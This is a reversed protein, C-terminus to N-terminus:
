NDFYFVVAKTEKRNFHLALRENEHLFPFLFSCVVKILFLINENKSVNRFSIILRCYPYGSVDRFRGFNPFLFLRKWYRQMLTMKAVGRVEKMGIKWRGRDVQGVFGGM